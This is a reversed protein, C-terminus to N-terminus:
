WQTDGYVVRITSGPRQHREIWSEACAKACFVPVADLVADAGLADRLDRSLPVRWWGTAVSMGEATFREQHSCNDCVMEVTTRQPM